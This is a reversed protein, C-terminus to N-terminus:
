AESQFAKDFKMAEALLMPAKPDERGGSHQDLFEEPLVLFRFTKGHEPWLGDKLTVRCWYIGHFEQSGDPLDVQQIGILKSQVIHANAEEILERALAEEATEGTEVGGGPIWREAGAASNTVLMIKGDATFAIAYVRDPKVDVVGLWTLTMDGYETPMIHVFEPM